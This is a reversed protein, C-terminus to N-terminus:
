GRGGGPEGDVPAGGPADGFIGCTMRDAMLGVNAASALTNAMGRTTARAVEISFDEVCMWIARGDAHFPNEDASHGAPVSQKVAPEGPDDPDDPDGGPGGTLSSM